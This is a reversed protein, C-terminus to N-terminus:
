SAGDALVGAADATPDRENASFVMTAVAGGCLEARQEDWRTPFGKMLRRLSLGSPENGEVIMEVLDPALSAVRLTRAVYSHDVHFRTALASISAVEGSELMAQWKWARAVARVLTEQAPVAGTVARPLVIEKRGARKKLKMPIRIRITEDGAAMQITEVAESM